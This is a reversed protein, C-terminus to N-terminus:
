RGPVPFSLEVVDGSRGPSGINIGNYTLDIGGANGLRIRIEQNANWAIAKGPLITGEFVKRGDAIVKVWCRETIVALLEHTDHSDDSEDVASNDPSDETAATKDDDQEHQRSNGHGVEQIDGLDNGPVSVEEVSVEGLTDPVHVDSRQQPKWLCLVIAFLVVIILIVIVLPLIKASKHKEKTEANDRHDIETQKTESHRHIRDYESVLEDGELGIAKAVSRIFGRVYVDGPLEFFRGEEMAILYAMRIKTMDHLDEISLGLAERAKRLRNGLTEM